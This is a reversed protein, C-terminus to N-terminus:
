CARRNSRPASKKYIKTKISGSYSQGEPSGINKLDDNLDKFGKWYHKFFKWDNTEDESYIEGTNNNTWPEETRAFCKDQLNFSGFEKAQEKTFRCM